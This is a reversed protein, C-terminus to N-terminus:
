SGSGRNSSNNMQWELDFSPKFYMPTSDGTLDSEPPSSPSEDSIQNSFNSDSRRM